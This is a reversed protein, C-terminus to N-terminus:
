RSNVIGKKELYGYDWHGQTDPEYRVYIASENRLADFEDATLTFILANLSGDKYEMLNFVQKGIQLVLKANLPPFPRNSSVEVEIGPKGNLAKASAVRRVTIANGENALAIFRFTVLVTVIVVLGLLFIVQRKM